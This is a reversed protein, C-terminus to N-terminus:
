FDEDDYEDQEDDSAIVCIIVTGVAILGIVTLIVIGVM